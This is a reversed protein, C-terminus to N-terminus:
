AMGRGEILAQVVSLAILWLAASVALSKGIYDLASRWASEEQHAVSQRQESARALEDILARAEASVQRRAVATEGPETDAPWRRMDHALLRLLAGVFSILGVGLGIWAIAESLSRAESTYITFPFVLVLPVLVPVAVRYDYILRRM